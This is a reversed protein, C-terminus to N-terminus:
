GFGQIFLRVGKGDHESWDFGKFAENASDSVAILNENSVNVDGKSPRFRVVGKTLGARGREPIRGRDNTRSRPPM